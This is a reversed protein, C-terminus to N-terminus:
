GGGHPWMAPSDMLRKTLLKRSDNTWPLPKRKRAKEFEAALGKPRILRHVQHPEM